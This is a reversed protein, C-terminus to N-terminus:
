SYNSSIVLVEGTRTLTVGIWNVDIWLGMKQPYNPYNGWDLKGSFEGQLEWKGPRSVLKEGPKGGLIGTWHGGAGGATTGLVGQTAGGAAPRSLGGAVGRLARPTAGRLGSLDSSLFCRISSIFIMWYLRYIYVYICLMVYM